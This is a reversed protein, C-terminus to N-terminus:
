PQKERAKFKDFKPHKAFDTQLSSSKEPLQTAPSLDEPELKPMSEIASVLDAKKMGDAGKIGLSKAMAKLESVTMKSIM